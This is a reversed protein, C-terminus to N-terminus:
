KLNLKRCSSNIVLDAGVFRHEPRCSSDELRQIAHRLAAAGMARLPMRIHSVPQETLPNDSVDDFCILSIDDPIRMGACEAALMFGPLKGGDMLFAATPRDRRLKEALEKVSLDRYILEEPPELEFATFAQYFGNIRPEVLHRTGRGAIMAIRHHGTLLLYEVARGAEHQYNVAFCSFKPNDLYRNIFVVPIGRDALKEYEQYEENRINIVLLADEEGKKLEDPSSFNSIVLRCDYEKAAQKIGDLLHPYYYYLGPSLESDVGIIRRRNLEPKDPAPSLVEWGVGARSAIYGKEALMQLVKRATTRSISYKEALKNESPMLQGAPILRGEIERRLMNYVVHYAIKPM